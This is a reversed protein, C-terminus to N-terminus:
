QAASRTSAGETMTGGTVSSALIDTLTKLKWAFVVCGVIHAAPLLLWYGQEGTQAAAWWLIAAM